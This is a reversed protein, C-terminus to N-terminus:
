ENLVWELVARFALEAFYYQPEASLRSIHFRHQLHAVDALAQPKKSFFQQM